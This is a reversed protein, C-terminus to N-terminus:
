LRRWPTLMREAIYVVALLGLTLFVTVSLVAFVLSIAHSNASTLMFIGLGKYAGVFEGVIAGAIAYTAAIRLGSFFTPLASPLHVYSLIQFRSARMSRLLDVLDENTSSLADSTAVAIPFFCYLVVIIVKPVLDFGFWILLLPALAIIPITQSFVLLPYIGARVRPLSFLLVAVGVGLVLAWVLGLVAELLTQSAHVFLIHRYEILAELIASPPPLITPAVDAAKCFFEWSAIFSGLVVFPAVIAQLNM